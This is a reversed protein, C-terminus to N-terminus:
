SGESAKVWNNTSEIISSTDSILLQPFRVYELIKTVSLKELLYKGLTYSISYGNKLEQFHYMLEDQTCLIQILNYKQNALCTALAEWFWGVGTAEPNIEQQCIHVFEHVILKKYSVYDNVMPNASHYLYFSLLNLNGNYTDAVMWDQYRDIYSVLYEKYNEIDNWIKLIKKKSLIKLKFFLMVKDLEKIDILTSIDDYAECEIYFYDQISNYKDLNQAKMLILVVEKLVMHFYMNTLNM